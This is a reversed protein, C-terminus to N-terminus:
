DNKPQSFFTEAKDFAADTNHKFSEFGTKYVKTWEDILSKGDKPLFKNQDWFSELTKEAQVQMLTMANYSNEFLTKNFEVMHKFLDTQYM